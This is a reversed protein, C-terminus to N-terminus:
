KEFPYVLNMQKRCEDMIKMCERTAEFPIYLSEKKGEALKNKGNKELRAESEKSSLGSETVELEKLVDEKSRLYEKM